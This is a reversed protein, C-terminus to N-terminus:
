MTAHIATLQVMIRKLLTTNTLKGKGINKVPQCMNKAVTTVWIIRRLVGSNSGETCSTILKLLESNNHENIQELTRVHFKDNVVSKVMEEKKM